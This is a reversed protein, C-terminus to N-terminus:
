TSVLFYINICLLVSFVSFTITLGYIARILKKSDRSAQADVPVSPLSQTPSSRSLSRSRTVTVAALKTDTSRESESQDKACIPESISLENEVMRILPEYFDKVGELAAKSIITKMMVFGTFDVVGHIEVHIGDEEEEKIVIFVSAQFNNGSPVDPTKTCVKIFMGHPWYHVIEEEINVRTQKPGIPSSLPTIYSISRKAGSTVDPKWGSYTIQSYKKEESFRRYIGSNFSDDSFLLDFLRKASCSIRKSILLASQPLVIEPHEVKKPGALAITQEAARSIEPASEARRELDPVHTENKVDSEGSVKRRAMEKLDLLPMAKAEAEKEKVEMWLRYM